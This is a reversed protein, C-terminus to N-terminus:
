SGDLEPMEPAAGDPPVSKLPVKSFEMSVRRTVMGGIRRIPRPTARRGVGALLDAALFDHVDGFVVQPRKIKEGM